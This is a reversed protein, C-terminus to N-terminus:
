ARASTALKPERVGKAARSRAQMALELERFGQKLRATPKCQWNSARASRALKPKRAGAKARSCTQMAM